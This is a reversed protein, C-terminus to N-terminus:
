GTVVFSLMMDKCTWGKFCHKFKKAHISYNCDILRSGTELYGGGAVKVRQLDTATARCNCKTAFSSNVFTDTSGSDVLAVALRGGLQILLSFTAASIMMTAPETMPEGIADQFSNNEMQEANLWGSPDINMAHLKSRFKCTNKHQPTWPEGCGWCKGPEKKFTQAPVVTTTTSPQTPKSIGQQFQICLPKQYSSQSYAFTKKALNGKELERAKWYCDILSIPNHPILYHKIIDKLGVIFAQVYYSETMQPHARQMIGMQEEFILIYDNVSSVQKTQNFQEVVGYHSVPSFRDLVMNTFVSWQMFGSPIRVGRWWHEAAGQCHLTAMSVWIDMPVNALSFYKECQRLWGMANEGSFTPFDLKPRAISLSFNNSQQPWTTVTQNDLQFQPNLQPPFTPIPNLNIGVAPPPTQPVFASL